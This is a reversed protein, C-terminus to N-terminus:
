NTEQELMEIYRQIKLLDMYDQATLKKFLRKFAIECLQKRRQIDM